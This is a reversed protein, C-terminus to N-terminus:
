KTNAKIWALFDDNGSKIAFFAIIPVEDAHLERVNKIIAKAHKHRTFLSINWYKQSVLKKKWWYISEGSTIMAGATLKETTLRRVIKQAEARSTASILARVCAM